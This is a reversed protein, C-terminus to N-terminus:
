GHLHALWFTFLAALNAMEMLTQLVQLLEREFVIMEVNTQCKETVFICFLVNESFSGVCMSVPIFVDSEQEGPCQM